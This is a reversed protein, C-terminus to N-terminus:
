IIHNVKTKYECVGDSSNSRAMFAGNRDIAVIEQNGAVRIESPGSYNPPVLQSRDPKTDLAYRTAIIVSDM